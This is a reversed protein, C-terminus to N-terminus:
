FWINVGEFWMVVDSIRESLVPFSLHSIYSSIGSKFALVGNNKRQTGGHWWAPATLALCNELLLPPSPPDSQYNTANFQQRFTREDEWTRHHQSAYGTRSLVPWVESSHFIIGLTQRGAAIKSCKIEKFIIESKIIRKAFDCSSITNILYVVASGLTLSPFSISNFYWSTHRRM